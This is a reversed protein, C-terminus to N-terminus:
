GSTFIWEQFFQYTMDQSSVFFNVERVKERPSACCALPLVFHKEKWASTSGM